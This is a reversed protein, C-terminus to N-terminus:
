AFHSSHIVHHYGFRYGFRCNPDGVKSNSQYQEFTLLLVFISCLTEEYINNNFWLLLATFCRSRHPAHTQTPLFTFLKWGLFKSPSFCTVQHSKLLPNRTRIVLSPASWFCPWDARTTRKRPSQHTWQQSLPMRGVSASILAHLKPLSPTGNTPVILFGNAWSDLLCTDRRRCNLQTESFSLLREM